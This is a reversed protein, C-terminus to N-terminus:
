CFLSKKRVIVAIRTGFVLITYDAKVESLKVYMKNIENLNKYYLKTIEASSKADEFGLAKMKNYDQAKIMLLDPAISGMLLPKLKDARDIVRKVVETGGYIGAAAGTKFYNDVIYVFVQDFGMISSTEYSYTFHALLTKYLLSNSDTKILIKDIEVCVSDPQMPVLEEFYTKLKNYFFPNRMVADDKFDVGDWYHEKYYNFAATSDPRGNSAKPVEKLLKQVKLNIVSAIYTGKSKVLFDNEYATVNKEFEKQKDKFNLTDQKTKFNFNEKLKLFDNNQKSLYKIYNLIM